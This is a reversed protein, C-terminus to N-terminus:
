VFVINTNTLLLHRRWQIAIILKRTNKERKHETLFSRDHYQRETPIGAYMPQM